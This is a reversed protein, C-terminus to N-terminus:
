EEEKKRVPVRLTMRPKIDIYPHLFKNEVKTLVFELDVSRVTETYPEVLNIFPNLVSKDIHQLAKSLDVTKSVDVYPALLRAVSKNKEAGELDFTSTESVILHLYRDFGDVFLKGEKLKELKPELVKRLEKMKRDLREAELHMKLYEAGQEQLESSPMVPVARKAKVTPAKPVDSKIPFFEEKLNKM